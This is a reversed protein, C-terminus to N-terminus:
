YWLLDGNEQVAYVMLRSSQIWGQRPNVFVHRFNQWGQGIKNGSNSHWGQGGPSGSQGNGDYRYWLLDGNEQVCYIVGVNPLGSDVQVTGNGAYSVHKFVM